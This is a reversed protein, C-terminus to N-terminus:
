KRREVRQYINCCRCYLPYSVKLLLVAIVDRTPSSKDELLDKGFLKVYNILEQITDDYGEVYAMQNLTTLRAYVYRRRVANKLTSYKEEVDRAMTDTMELLDLKIYGFKSNVISNIRM